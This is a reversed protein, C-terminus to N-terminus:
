TPLSYEPYWRDTVSNCLGDDRHGKFRNQLRDKMFVGISVPPPFRRVIRERYRALSASLMIPNKLVINAAQEVVNIVTQQQFGKTMVTM